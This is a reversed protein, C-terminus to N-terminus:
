LLSFVCQMKVSKNFYDGFTVDSSGAIWGARWTRHADQKTNLHTNTAIKPEM